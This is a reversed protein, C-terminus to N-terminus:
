QRNGTLKRAQIPPKAKKSITSLSTLVKEPVFDLIQPLFNNSIQVLVM